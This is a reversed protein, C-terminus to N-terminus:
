SRKKSAIVIITIVVVVGGVGVLLLIMTNDTPLPTSSTTPTTGVSTTVTTETTETTTIATFTSTTTTPVIVELVAITITVNLSNGYPDEVFIMLGYSGVDLVTANQILGGIISFHITDNLSWLYIGSEDTANVQYSFPVGYDIEQDEPEIVWTPSTSDTV